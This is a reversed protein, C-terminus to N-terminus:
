FDTEIIFVTSLKKLTIPGKHWSEIEPLYMGDTNKALDNVTILESYFNKSFLLYVLHSKKDSIELFDYFSKGPAIQKETKNRLDFLCVAELISGVSEHSHLSTTKLNQTSSPLIAGKSKISLYKEMSTFHFVQNKIKPYFTEEMEERSKISLHVEKPM